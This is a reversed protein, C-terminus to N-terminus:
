ALSNVLHRIMDDITNEPKWGLELLKSSDLVNRMIPNYGLRTANQGLDIILKSKAEPYLDIFRQALDFISIETDMNAVNYAEGPTGKVMITLLASAVDMTDCYNRVTKGTSKLIINERNIISKAFQSFVRNDDKSVHAGFSATLRAM